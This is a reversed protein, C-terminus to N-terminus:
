SNPVLHPKPTSLYSQLARMIVESRYKNLPPRGIGDRGISERYAKLIRKQLARTPLERLPGAIISSMFARGEVTENLWEYQTIPKCQLLEIEAAQDLASLVSDEFEIMIKTSM